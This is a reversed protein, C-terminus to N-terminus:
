RFDTLDNFISEYMAASSASALHFSVMQARM